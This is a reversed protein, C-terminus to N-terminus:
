CCSFKKQSILCIHPTHSLPLCYITCSFSWDKKLIQTLIAPKQQGNSLSILFSLCYNTLHALLNQDKWAIVNHFHTALNKSDLAWQGHRWCVILNFEVIWPSSLVFIFTGIHALIKKIFDLNGSNSFKWPLFIKLYIETNAGLREEWELVKIIHSAKSPSPPGPWLFIERKSKFLQKSGQPYRWLKEM